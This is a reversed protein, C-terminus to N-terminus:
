RVEFLREVFDFRLGNKDVVVNEVRWADKYKHRRHNEGESTLIVRGKQRIADIFKEWIAEEPKAGADLYYPRGRNGNFWKEHVCPLEEGTTSLTAFWSGSKGKAKIM